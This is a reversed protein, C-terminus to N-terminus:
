NIHKLLFVLFLTWNMEGRIKEIARHILNRASQYNIDLLRSIDEYSVDMQFRLYLAEKQRDTLLSLAKDFKEKIEAEEDTEESPNYSYEVYFRIDQPPMYELRHKNDASLRDLLKNKLAKLLYLKPNDTESLNARNNYIKIFVDQICDKVIDNSPVFKMGYRYMQDSFLDFLSEFAKGDGKLFSRWLDIM